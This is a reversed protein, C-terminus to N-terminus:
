EKERVWRWGECLIGVPNIPRLKLSTPDLAEGRPVRVALLRVGLPLFQQALHQDHQEEAHLRGIATHAVSTCVACAACVGLGAVCEGDGAGQGATPM